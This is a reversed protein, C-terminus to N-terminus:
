KENDTFANKISAGLSNMDSNFERKFSEWKESRKEEKYDRLKDRLVDNRRELEAIREDYMDKERATKKMSRKEKLEKITKKNEEIKVEADKKFNSVEMSYENEAKQLDEQADRVDEREARVEEKASEVKNHKDCSIFLTGAFFGLTAITLIKTKM